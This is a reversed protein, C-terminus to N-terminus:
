GAKLAKPKGEDGHVLGKALHHDINAATGGKNKIPGERLGPSALKIQKQYSFKEKTQDVFGLNGEMGRAAVSFIGM